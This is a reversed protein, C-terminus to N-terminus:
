LYLLSYYYTDQLIRTLVTPVGYPIHLVTNTRINQQKLMVRVGYSFRCFQEFNCNLYNYSPRSAKHVFFLKEYVIYLETYEYQLVFLAM